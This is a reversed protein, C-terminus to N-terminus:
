ILVLRPCNQPQSTFLYATLTNIFDPFKYVNEIFSRFEYNM